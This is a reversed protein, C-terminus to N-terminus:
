IKVDGNKLNGYELNFKLLFVIVLEYSLAKNRIVTMTVVIMIWVMLVLLSSLSKIAGYTSTLSSWHDIWDFAVWVLISLKKKHFIVVWKVWKKYSKNVKESCLNYNINYVSYRQVVVVQWSRVAAVFLRNLIFSFRDVVVVKLNKFLRKGLFYAYLM